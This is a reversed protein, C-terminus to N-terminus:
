PCPNELQIGFQKNEDIDFLQLFNDCEPQTSIVFIDTVWQYTEGQKEDTYKTHSINVSTQQSPELTILKWNETMSNGDSTKEFLYWRQPQDSKNELILVATCKTGHSGSEEARDRFEWSYEEPKLICNKWIPNREEIFGLTPNCALMALILLTVAILIGTRQKQNAHM